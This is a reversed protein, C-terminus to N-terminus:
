REALFHGEIRYDGNTIRSDPAKTACVELPLRKIVKVQGVPEARYLESIEVEVAATNAGTRADQTASERQPANSEGIKRATIRHM